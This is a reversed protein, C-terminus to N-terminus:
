FQFNSFLFVTPFAPSTLFDMESVCSTRMAHIAGQCGRGSHIIQALRLTAFTMMLAERKM